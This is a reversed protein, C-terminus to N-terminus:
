CIDDLAVHTYAGKGTAWLKLSISHTQEIVWVARARIGCNDEGEKRLGGGEMQGRHRLQVGQAQFM